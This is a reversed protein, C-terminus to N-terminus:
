FQPLDPLNHFYHLDPKEININLKNGKPLESIFDKLKRPKEQQNKIKLGSLTATPVQLNQKKARNKSETKKLKLVM